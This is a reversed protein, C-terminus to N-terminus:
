CKVGEQDGDVISTDDRHEFREFRLVDLGKSRGRCLFVYSFLKKCMM